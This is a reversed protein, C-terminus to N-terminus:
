HRQLADKLTRRFDIQCRFRARSRLRIPSFSCFIFYIDRVDFWFLCFGSIQRELFETFWYFISSLVVGNDILLKITKPTIEHTSVPCLTHALQSAAKCKENDNHAM